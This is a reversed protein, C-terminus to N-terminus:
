HCFLWQHFFSLFYSFPTQKTPKSLINTYIYTLVISLEIQDVILTALCQKKIVIGEIWMSRKDVTAVKKAVFNDTRISPHPSHPILCTKWNQLNVNIITFHTYSWHDYVWKVMMSSCKVMMLLCKVIMLKFNVM